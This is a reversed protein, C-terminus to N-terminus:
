TAPMLGLAMARVREAGSAWSVDRWRGGRKHGYRPRESHRQAQAVFMDPLNEFSPM